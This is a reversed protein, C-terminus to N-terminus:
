RERRFRTDICIAEGGDAVAETPLDREFQGKGAGRQRSGNSKVRTQFAHGRAIRVFHAAAQQEANTGLIRHGSRFYARSELFIEFTGSYAPLHVKVSGDEM